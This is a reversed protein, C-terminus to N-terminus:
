EKPHDKRKNHIKIIENNDDSVEIDSTLIKILNEEADFFDPKLNLAIKFCM